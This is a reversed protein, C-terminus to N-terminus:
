ASPPEIRDVAATLFHGSGMAIDAVRFDFFADAAAREELKDLRALHEKLAPELAYELLHEVAFHKTFYSGSAKRAGSTNHLYARGKTVVVGEKPKAPRYQEQKEVVETTLDVEAVSLENELLGEYITGFERVGLSRFDVPGWGEPTNDVLLSQLVPGFARDPVRIEALAAGSPSVLRDRSFLGGNYAPVGWEKNSEDVARFLRDVEDWHNTDNGFPAESRIVEILERAKQKLSRAKYRDNTKYPLLEKDEAYAVFLLRFLVVLAM